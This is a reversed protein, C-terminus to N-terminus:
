GKEEKGEKWEARTIPLKVHAGLEGTVGCKGMDGGGRESQRTHTCNDCEMMGVIICLVALGRKSRVGSDSRSLVLLLVVHEPKHNKDKPQEPYDKASRFLM